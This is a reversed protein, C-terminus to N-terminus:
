NLKKIIKDYIKINKGEQINKKMYFLTSKNIGLKKRNEPTMKLIKEKISLYDKRKFYLNPIDFIINKNKESIFLSLKSINDSLIVDYYYNKGKYPVKIKFNDRIKEILLSALSDKLRIHYNETTIFDSKKLKPTNELLQIVSLDVIWRFLEMIDYVLPTRSPLVEHLFGIEPDLGYSNLIKRIESELISYGYNLLANIEDPANYNRANEKVKRGSYAFEPAIQRFITGLATFYAQAVRGEYVLLNTINNEHTNKLFEYKEKNFIIKINKIDILYFDSLQELLNYSSDIKSFVLKESIEYRKNNSLYAQYQKIKLKGSIPSEPLTIGLINGNWNLITLPINHKMLWKIGDFTIFGSHNDLIINDYDIKHPYFEYKKNNLKNNIILKRKEVNISTGFGSILLPNM